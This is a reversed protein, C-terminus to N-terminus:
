LRNKLYFMGSISPKFIKGYIKNRFENSIPKQGFFWGNFIFSYLGM